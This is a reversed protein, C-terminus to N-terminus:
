PFLVLPPLLVVLPVVVTEPPLLVVLPGVVAPDVVMGPLASRGSEDGSIIRIAPTIITITIIM